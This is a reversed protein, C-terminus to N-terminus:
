PDQCMLILRIGGELLRLGLAMLNAAYIIGNLHQVMKGLSNELM